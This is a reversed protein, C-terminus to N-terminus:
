NSLVLKDSFYLLEEIKHNSSQPMMYLHSDMLTSNIVLRRSFDKINEKEFREKFQIENCEEFNKKMMILNAYSQKIEKYCKMNEDNIDKSNARL